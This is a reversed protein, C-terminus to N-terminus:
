VIEGFLKKWLPLINQKEFQGLNGKANNSFFAREEENEILRCMANALAEINTPEVLIGDIGNRVIERPGTNVDFSVIPLKNIKAELLTIPLGERYSPMVYAAYDKYCSRMTDCKGKLAISNELELETIQSRLYAEEDGDGYIDLSWDPHKKIVHHFAKILQDFGKEKSLRGVSIFKRSFIDYQKSDVNSAEIWNYICDIKEPKIHFREIYDDRTKKTLVVTRDCVKSAILRMTRTKRDNWQNILAGHDCFIFKTKVFPRVSAALFAPYHSLIVLLDMKERKLFQRLPRFTDRAQKRLRENQHDKPLLCVKKVSEHLGSPEIKLDGTIGLYYVIYESSFANALNVGVTEVGGYSNYDYIAFCVRRKKLGM